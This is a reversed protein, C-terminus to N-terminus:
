NGNSEGPKSQGNKLRSRSSTTSVIDVNDPEQAPPQKQKKSCKIMNFLYSLLKGFSSRTWKSFRAIRHFAEALKNTEADAQPSSLNSAGFSSLLLALFLNLVVLNGIIVTALFYPVCSVDGVLM